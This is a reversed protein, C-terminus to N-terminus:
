QMGLRPDAKDVSLLCSPAMPAYICDKLYLGGCIVGVLQDVFAIGNATELFVEYGM